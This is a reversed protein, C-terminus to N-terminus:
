GMSRVGEPLSIPKFQDLAMSVSEIWILVCVLLVFLDVTVLRFSVDCDLNQDEDMKQGVQLSVEGCDYFIDSRSVCVLNAQSAGQCDAHQRWALFLDANLCLGFDCWPQLAVRQAKQM